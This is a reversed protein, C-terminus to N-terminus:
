KKEPKIFTITLPALRIRLCETEPKLRGNNVLGKGGYITNDSNFIEKYDCCKPVTLLYNSYNNLSFNCAIIMFDDKNRSKRIFAVTSKEPSDCDIWQFGDKTHDLEWLTNEKEYIRNLDQVLNKIQIHAPDKLLDWDLERSSDWTKIQGFECGMFTHKKGPHAMCYGYLLRLGALKEYESGFMRNYISQESDSVEDHSLALIFKESFAYMISFTILEHNERKAGSDMGMYKLIDSIFGMNWKYSFGLGGEHVPRTSGSWLTPEESILIAAPHHELIISNLSKIFKEADLNESGGKINKLGSGKRAGYDLYLTNAVADMRFGDVHYEELWFMANSIIFNQVEPRSLDFNATGWENVDGLLPNSYEYLATGDFRYLGHDDKCFHGPVWDLIVGIGSKHLTDVFCKFDEANGYRSTVSYYGTAQYGWSPDHPYETIPLLEVHTFGLEKVYAALQRAMDRYNLMGGDERCRWSGLHLEYINLREDKEELNKNRIWEEDEWKYGGSATIISGYERMHESSRAYPDSKYTLKDERTRILYKYREGASIGAIFLQYCGKREDEDVRQMIHGSGDWRNFDGVVMVEKANPAWLRFWAGDQGRFREIHSGFYEYERIHNDNTKM